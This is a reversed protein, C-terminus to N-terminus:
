SRRTGLPRLGGAVERGHDPAVRVRSPAARSMERVGEEKAAGDAEARGVVRVAGVSEAKAGAVHSMERAVEGKVAGGAETRGVVRAAGVPEAKAVAAEAARGAALEARAPQARGLDEVERAM